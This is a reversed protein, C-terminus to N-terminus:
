KSYNCRFHSHSASLIDAAATPIKKRNENASITQREKEERQQDQANKMPEPHGGERARALSGRCILEATKSCHSCAWGCPLCAAARLPRAHREFLKSCCCAASTEGYDCQQGAQGAFELDSVTCLTGVNSCYQRTYSEMVINFSPCSSQLHAKLTLEM